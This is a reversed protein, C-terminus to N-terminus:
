ILPLSPINELHFDNKLTCLFVLRASFNVAPQKAPIISVEAVATANIRGIGSIGSVTEPHSLEEIKTECSPKSLEAGIEEASSLTDSASDELCCSVM